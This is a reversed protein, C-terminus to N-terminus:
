VIFKTNALADPPLDDKTVEEFTFENELNWGDDLDIWWSHASRFYRVTNYTQIVWFTISDGCDDADYVTDRDKIYQELSFPKNPPAWIWKFYRGASLEGFKM